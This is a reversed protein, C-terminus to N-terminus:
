ATLRCRAQRMPLGLHAAVVVLLGLSRTQHCPCRLPETPSPAPARNPPAFPPATSGNPKYPAAAVLHISEPALRLPIRKTLGPGGGRRYNRKEHSAFGGPRGRPPRDPRERTLEGPHVKLEVFRQVAESVLAISELINELEDSQVTLEEEYSQEGPEEQSASLPGRSVSTMSDHRGAQTRREPKGDGLYDSSCPFSWSGVDGM